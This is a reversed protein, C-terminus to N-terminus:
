ISTKISIELCDKKLLDNAGDKTQKFKIDYGQKRIHASLKDVGEQGIKWENWFRDIWSSCIYKPEEANMEYKHGAHITLIPPDSRYEYAQVLSLISNVDMRYENQGYNATTFIDIHKIRPFLKFISPNLLHDVMFEHKRSEFIMQYHSIM